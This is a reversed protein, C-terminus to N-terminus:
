EITKKIKYSNPLLNNWRNGINKGLGIPIGQHQFVHFGLQHFTLDFTLKQLYIQASKLDLTIEPYLSTEAFLNLAWEHEPIFDKGKQTGIFVGNKVLKLETQLYEWDSFHTKLVAFYNQNKFFFSFEDFNKLHKEIITDTKHKDKKLPIPFSSNLLEGKRRLVTLSFGEGKVLGPFFRYFNLKQYEHIFINWDKPVEYFINEFDTNNSLFQHVLKENEELNFTCTSYILYGGPLLIEKAHELISKQRNACVKVYDENLNKQLQNAHKRFMGEGSCPADIMILHFFSENPFDEPKNHSVYINPYGSITVNHILANLRQQDIENALILSNLPFNAALSLTKGGPAACLDLLKWSIIESHNEYIKQLIFDLFMSSAEQVYYAGANWLPDEIFSPRNKLYFGKKSWPVKEYFDFNWNQPIKHPNLKISVPMEEELSKLIQDAITPFNKKLEKSLYELM